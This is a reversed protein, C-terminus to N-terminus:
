WCLPPCRSREQDGHPTILRECRDTPGGSVSPNRIGMPPLSDHVLGLDGRLRRPEQDGHPTILEGAEQRAGPRKHMNRIGMPPLSALFISSVAATFM